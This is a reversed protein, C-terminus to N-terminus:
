EVQVLVYYVLVFVCYLHRCTVDSWRCRCMICWCSYVICIVVRLTVGGASACLVGARICLVSSSMYCTLAESSSLGCESTHTRGELEM